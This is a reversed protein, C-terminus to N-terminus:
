RKWFEWWKSGPTPTPVFRSYLEQYTFLATRSPKGQASGEKTEITPREETITVSEGLTVRQLSGLDSLLSEVVDWRLAITQQYGEDSRLPMGIITRGDSQLVLGGSYGGYLAQNLIIYDSRVDTVTCCGSTAQPSLGAPYGWVRVEKGILDELKQEAPPSSLGSSLHLYPKLFSYEEVPIELLAIDSLIGRETRALLIASPEVGIGVVVRSGVEQIKDFKIEEKKKPDDRNLVLTEILLSPVVIHRATIVYLREGLIVVTGAGQVLYSGETGKVDRVSHEAYVKILGLYKQQETNPREEGLNRLVPYDDISFTPVPSPSVSPSTCAAILFWLCIILLRRLHRVM